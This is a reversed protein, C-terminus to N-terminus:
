TNLAPCAWTGLHEMSSCHMSVVFRNTTNTSGAMTVVSCCRKHVCWRECLILLVRGAHGGM